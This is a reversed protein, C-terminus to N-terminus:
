RAAAGHVRIFGPHEAAEIAPGEPMETFHPGVASGGLRAAPARAAAENTRRIHIAVSQFVDHM